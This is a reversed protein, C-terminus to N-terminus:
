EKQLLLILEDQKANKDYEIGREELVAMIEKRGPKKKKNFTLGVPRMDSRRNKIRCM